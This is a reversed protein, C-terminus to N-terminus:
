NNKVHWPYDNLRTIWDERDPKQAGDIERAIGQYHIYPSVPTQGWLISKAIIESFGDFRTLRIAGTMCKIQRNMEAQPLRGHVVINEKTSYWPKRNGYLHFEVDPHKEAWKDIENWGYLTFDDGSVSTYYQKKKKIKQVPYDTVNGLFSPVVEVDEEFIGPLSSLALRELENEVFHYGEQILVDPAGPMRSTGDTDLWYGNLMNRIDSGAWLIHKIGTHQQFVQLDQVGYMGFFVAPETPDTYPITGWVDNPHGAFGDGLSPAIRCQWKRM